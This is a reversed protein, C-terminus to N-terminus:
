QQAMEGQTLRDVTAVNRDQRGASWQALSDILTAKKIPNTLFSDMGAATCRERDEAFANATLAVIPRPKRGTEQEWHRIEQTAQLGDMQPMSVDMFVVDPDMDKFLMVAVEGDKAFSLDLGLGGLMKKILLRNTSNDEAVMVRLGKFDREVVHAAQRTTAEAVERDAARELRCTFEFTSGVNLVSRVTIDGDM